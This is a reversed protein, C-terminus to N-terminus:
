YQVGNNRKQKSLPDLKSGLTKKLGILLKDHSVSKKRRKRYQFNKVSRQTTQQVTLQSTASSIHLIHKTVSNFCQHSIPRKHFHSIEQFIIPQTNPQKSNHTSNIFLYKRDENNKAISLIIIRDYSSM